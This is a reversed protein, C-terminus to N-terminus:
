GLHRAARRRRRPVHRGRRARGRDEAVLIRALKGVTTTKGSGNVGVVLVVGPKGDAGSVQLRRDMAADVLTLLEERLM